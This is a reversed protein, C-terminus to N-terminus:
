LLAKKLPAAFIIEEKFYLPRVIFTTPMLSEAKLPQRLMVVTLIGLLTVEMPLEAKEPQLPRVETVILLGLTPEHKQSKVEMFSTTNPSSTVLM